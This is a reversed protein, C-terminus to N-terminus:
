KKKPHMFEHVASLPIGFNFNDTGRLKAFNVAVVEGYRNLVPSGSSGQMTPISYVVRDADPNQTVKGSTFQVSLGNRTQALVVGANYGIMYVDDNVVLVPEGDTDEGNGAFEFIHRDDPTVSTNLKILALDVDSQNSVRVVKCPNKRLFDDLSKVTQGDYALGLQCVAKIRLKTSDLSALESMMRKVQLGNQTLYQERATIRALATTDDIYINGYRDFKQLMMKHAEMVDFDAGLNRLLVTLNAGITRKVQAFSKNLTLSDLETAAVHRNTILQGKDDIFFATGTIVEAYKRASDASNTFAKLEGNNEIGTFYLKQGSPMSIEYYFKNLVVAVGSKGENYIEEPRMERHGCGCLMLVSLLVLIM